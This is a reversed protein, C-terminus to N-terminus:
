GVKNGQESPAGHNIPMKGEGREIDLWKEMFIKGKDTIYYTKVTRGISSKVEQIYGAEVFEKLRKIRSNKGEGDTLEQQNIGSNYYVGKLVKISNIRSILDEINDV